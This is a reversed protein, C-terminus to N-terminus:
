KAGFCKKGPSYGKKFAEWQSNFWVRNRKSIRKGFKCEPTHFRRSRRSGVVKGKLKKIRSWIGKGQSMAKQQLKLLRKAYHNNQRDYLCFGLGQKIIEGNVFTGDELFIYALVRNYQDKKTKDFELRIKKNQLLKQNYKKSAEGFPEAKKNRKKNAIEPANIGIYRVHQRNKLIITDGDIVYQVSEAYSQVSIMLLSVILAMIFSYHFLKKLM